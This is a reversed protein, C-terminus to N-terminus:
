IERAIRESIGRSRSVYYIRAGGNRERRRWTGGTRTNDRYIHAYKRLAINRSGTPRGCPEIGVCKERKREGENREAKKTGGEM